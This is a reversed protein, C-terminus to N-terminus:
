TNPSGYGNPSPPRVPCGSHDGSARLKFNLEVLASSPDHVFDHGALFGRATLGGVQQRQFGSFAHADDFFRDEAAFVVFAAALGLDELLEFVDVFVFVEADRRDIFCRHALLGGIIILGGGAGRHRPQKGFVEILLLHRREFEQVAVLTEFAREVEVGHHGRGYVFDGAQM